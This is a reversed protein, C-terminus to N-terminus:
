CRMAQLVGRELLEGLHTCTGYEQQQSRQADSSCSETGWGVGDKGRPSMQHWESAILLLKLSM